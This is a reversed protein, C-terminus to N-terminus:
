VADYFLLGWVLKIQTEIVVCLLPLVTNPINKQCWKPKKTGIEDYKMMMLIFTNVAIIWRNFWDSEFKLFMQVCVADLFDVM